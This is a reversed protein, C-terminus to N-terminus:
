QLQSVADEARESVGSSADPELAADQGEGRLGSANADDEGSESEPEEEAEQRAIGEELLTSAQMGLKVAEEYLDLAADLSISEDNVADVIEDLRAKVSEFTAGTENAM